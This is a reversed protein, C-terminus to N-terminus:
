KPARLAARAKQIWEDLRADTLDIAGLKPGRQQMLSRLEERAQADTTQPSLALIGQAGTAGCGEVDGKKVYAIFLHNLILPHSPAIATAKRFAEIAPKMEGAEYHLLGMNSWPEPNAPDCETAKRLAELALETKGAKNALSGYSTWLRGSKPNAELGKKMFALADEMKGQRLLASSGLTWAMVNAPAEATAAKAYNLAFENNGAALSAQAQRVQPHEMEKQVEDAHPVQYQAEAALPIALTVTLVVALLPAPSRLRANTKMLAHM